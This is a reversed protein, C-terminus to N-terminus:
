LWTDAQSCGGSGNSTLRITTCTQCAWSVLWLLLLSIFKQYHRGQMALPYQNDDELGLRFCAEFFSICLVGEVTKLKTFSQPGRVHHLLLQLYFWEGQHPNIAYVRTEIQLMHKRSAQFAPWMWERSEEIRTGYLIIINIKHGFRHFSNWIVCRALLVKWWWHVETVIYLVLSGHMEDSLLEASLRQERKVTISVQYLRLLGRSM